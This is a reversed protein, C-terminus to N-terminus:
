WVASRYFVVVAPRGDRDAHLSVPRGYADPLTFDPLREGVEPGTLHGAPLGARGPHGLPGPADFGLADRETTM